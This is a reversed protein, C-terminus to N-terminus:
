DPGARYVGEWNKSVPELGHQRLMARFEAVDRHDSVEFQGEEHHVTDSYGGVTTKSAVSMKSIGIGAMGDRFTPGERTSLVLPVTPLCIRFACVAQALFRENVPFDPQFQGAQPNVRPFSVSVGAQWSTRMVHRAHRFLCILDPVPDSLGLLVGLGASRLGGTLARGPAALRAAYDRKCGWRHLADYRVPDYTEQYLTLGTCGAAALGAYESCSMPFAEITVQHVHTAASAVCDRLYAFDADPTREGTLLLIEDLGRAKLARMEAALQSQNLKHRPTKRDSAFGCYACGGSCYSSLYLPAYLKITRGFHRRTLARARAAMSELQDSAATSLLTAVDRESPAETLVAHAVAQADAQRACDLWPRPDLWDPYDCRM